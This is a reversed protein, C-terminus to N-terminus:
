KIPLDQESSSYEKVAFTDSCTCARVEDLTKQIGRVTQVMERRHGGDVFDMVSMENKNMVFCIWFGILVWLIAPM